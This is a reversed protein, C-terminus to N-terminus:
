DGGGAPPLLEFAGTAAVPEGVRLGTVEAMTDNQFVVTVDREDFKVNGDKDKSQVFVLTKGTSPDAVIAAKPILTGRDHAIAITATVAAGPIAQSVDARVMVQATQAVPDLAGAVGTVTGRISRSGVRLTAADGSAIRAADDAGVQLAVESPEAPAVAVVAVTSDVPEGAVHYVATVVGDIPSRLTTNAADRAAMAARADAGSVAANAAARGARASQADATDAALQAQADEVDKRAVVGGSFLRQARELAARDVALRTTSRDVAAAQAQAAAQTADAQAARAALTLPVADLQALTEGASVRDGVRVSVDAIRGATAFALKTQSGAAGGVRGLAPVTVVITGSQARVIAVHPSQDNAPAPSKACAALLVLMTMGLTARVTMGLTARMTM